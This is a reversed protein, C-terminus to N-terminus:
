TLAHPREALVARGVVRAVAGLRRALRGDPRGRRPARVRAAPFRQELEERRLSNLRTTGELRQRIVGAERRHARPRGLWRPEDPGTPLADGCGRGSRGQVAPRVRQLDLRDPSRARPVPTSVGRAPLNGLGGRYDSGPRPPAPLCAPRDSDTAGGLFEEIRPRDGACAAEFRDCAEDQDRPDANRGVLSRAWQRHGRRDGRENKM